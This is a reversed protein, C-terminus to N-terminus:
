GKRRDPSRSTSAGSTTGSTSRARAVVRRRRAAAGSTGARDIARRIEPLRSTVGTSTENHVVLVARIHHERDARSGRRSREGPDVGRRWDGPMVEVDLGSDGRWRRGTRARVRRHRVLAGRRRALAHQRAVSGVRRQGVGSLDGGTAATQFVTKLGSSCRAASRPSSPAATISRRSRWRACCAIPRTPRAPFRSSTVAPSYM